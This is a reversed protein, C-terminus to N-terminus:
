SKKKTRFTRGEFTKTLPVGMVNNRKGQPEEPGDIIRLAQFVPLSWFKDLRVLCVWCWSITNLKSPHIINKKSETGRGKRELHIPYGFDLFAGGLEQRLIQKLKEANKERKLIPLISPFVEGPRQTPLQLESRVCRLPLRHDEGEDVSPDGAKRSWWFSPIAVAATSHKLVHSYCTWRTTTM